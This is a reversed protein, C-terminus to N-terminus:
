SGLLRIRLLKLWHRIGALPKPKRLSRDQGLVLGADDVEFAANVHALLGPQRDYMHVIACAKGDPGAIRGDADIRMPTDRYINAVHTHNPTLQAKLWAQM